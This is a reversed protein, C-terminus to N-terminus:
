DKIIKIEEGKNILQVITELIDRQSQNFKLVETELNDLFLSDRIEEDLKKKTDEPLRGRVNDIIWKCKNAFLLTTHKQSGYLHNSVDEYYEMAIKTHHLGKIMLLNTKDEINM